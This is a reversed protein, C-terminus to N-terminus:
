ASLVKNSNSSCSRSCYPSIVICPTSVFRQQRDLSAPAVMPGASGQQSPVTSRENLTRQFSPRGITSSELEHQDTFLAVSLQRLDRRKQQNNGRQPL